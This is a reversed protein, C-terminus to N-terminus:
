VAFAIGVAVAASAHFISTGDCAPALWQSPPLAIALHVLSALALTTGFLVLAAARDRRLVWMLGFGIVTALVAPVAETAIAMATAAVLGAGIAWLPSRVARVTCW